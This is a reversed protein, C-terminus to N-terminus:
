KGPAELRPLYTMWPLFEYAGSDCQAVGDRDGDVPRKLSRQDAPLCGDALGADIAPSGRLLAPATRSTPMGEIAALRPNLPQAGSGVQDGGAGHVIGTSGDAMGVLNGGGSVFAGSLDPKGAASANGAILTNSLIVTAAAAASVGGGGNQGAGQDVGASATSNGSITVHRLSVQGGYAMIGGGGDSDAGLAQNGHLTVNALAVAGANVQLGGGTSTIATTQNNLIASDAASLDTAGTVLAGGGADVATNAAILMNSAALTSNEVVLGGGLRATNSMVRVAELTAITPWLWEDNLNAMGGGALATNGVLSVRRLALRAAGNHVAGGLIATNSIFAADVVETSASWFVDMAGGYTAANDIFTANSIVPSAGNVFIAGGSGGRMSARNGIFTVHALAPYTEGGPPSMIIAGGCSGTNSIFTVHELTSRGTHILLAGGHPSDNQTFLSDRLAVASDSLNIGGGHSAAHNLTFTLHTMTGVSRFITMGGGMYQSAPDAPPQGDLPGARNRHFAVRDLALRSGAYSYMGGGHRAWNDAFASDSMTVGAADNYAGGGYLALNRDFTVNVLLPAGSGNYLGGGLSGTNSFFVMNRLTPSGDPNIMGGGWGRHDAWVTTSVASGATIRVGDLVATRTVGGAYVVHYSNDGRDGPAGLDGTLTVPHAVWDRQSLAAEGGAFGGYIAVGDKLSFTASRPDAADLRVTPAYVGQAIWIQDGSAAAGLAVELSTYADAWSAGSNAGAAGVNVYLIAGAARAAATQRSSLGPMAFALMSLAVAARVRRQWATTRGIM